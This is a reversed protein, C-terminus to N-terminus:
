IKSSFLYALSVMFARNKVLPAPGNLMTAPYNAGVNRLGWSYGAQLLITKFQYGLGAQLGADLNRQYYNTDNASDSYTDGAKVDGEQTSTKSAGTTLTVVTNNQYSGGLLFSLYPGAFLQFGQGDAQQTYAFNLPIALRNARISQTGASTYSGLSNYNDSFKYGQQSFLIAPQFAFHPLNVSAKLGAEFGSRSSTEYSYTAYPSSGTAMDYSVSTLNYGVQPGISFSVQAQAKAVLTLLCGAALITLRTSSM